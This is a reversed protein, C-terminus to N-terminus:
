YSQWDIKQKEETNARLALHDIQYDVLNVNM